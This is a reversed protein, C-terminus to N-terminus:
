RAERARRISRLAFGAALSLAGLLVVLPMPSATKPLTEAAPAPEPAPAPAPAPAPPPPAAAPAPAPKAPANVMAAVQSESVTTTSDTVITASLRDGPRFESLGVQTGDRYLKAHRKEVDVQTYKHPKGDQGRVIIANGSVALVEANRHETVTVPKMTTTTTVTATGKMGPKLDAVGMQKGDMMFTAGPQATYEKTAGTGDKYVINNGDVSVIEFNVTRTTTEQALAAGALFVLLCSAVLVLVRTPLKRM